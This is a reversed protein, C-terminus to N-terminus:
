FYSLCCKFDDEAIVNESVSWFIINFCLHWFNWANNEIKFTYIITNIFLKFAQNIQNSKIQNIVFWLAFICLSVNYWMKLRNQVTIDTNSLIHLTPVPTPKWRGHQLFQSHDEKWISVLSQNHNGESSLLVLDGELLFEWVHALQQLLHQQAWRPWTKPPHLVYPVTFIYDILVSCINDIDTM